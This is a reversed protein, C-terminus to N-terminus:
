CPPPRLGLTQITPHCTAPSAAFLPSSCSRRPRGIRPGGRTMESQEAKAKSNAVDMSPLPVRCRCPPKLHGISFSYGWNCSSWWRCSHMSVLEVVHELSPRKGNNRVLKLNFFTFNAKQIFFISAGTLFRRPSCASFHTECWLKKSNNVDDSWLSEPWTPRMPTGPLM